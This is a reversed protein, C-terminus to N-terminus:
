EAQLLYYISPMTEGLKFTLEGNEWKGAISGTFFGEANVAWVKMLRQQTKITIEAEIAEVLIPPEGYDLM